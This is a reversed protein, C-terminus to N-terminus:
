IIMGTKLPFTLDKSAGASKFACCCTVKLAFLQIGSCKTVIELNKYIPTFKHWYGYICIAFLAWQVATTCINVIKNVLFLPQVGYQMIRIMSM